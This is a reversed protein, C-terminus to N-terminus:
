SPPTTPNWVGVCISFWGQAFFGGVGFGGRDGPTVLGGLGFFVGPRIGGETWLSFVNVVVFLLFFVGRSILSWFGLSPQNHNKHCLFFLPPTNKTNKKKKPNPKKKWPPKKKQTQPNPPHTKKKQKKTNQTNPKNKKKKKPTHNQHPTENPPPQPPPHQGLCLRGPRPAVGGWVGL